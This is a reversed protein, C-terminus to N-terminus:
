GRTAGFASRSSSAGSLDPRGGQNTKQHREQFEAVRRGLLEEADRVKRRASRKSSRSSGRSSSRSGIRTRSSWSSPTPSHWSAAPRRATRCKPKAMSSLGSTPASARHWLSRRGGRNGGDTWGVSTGFGLGAAVAGGLLLFPWIFTDIKLFKPLKLADLAILQKTSAAGRLGRLTVLPTM